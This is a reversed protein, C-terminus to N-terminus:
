RAAAVKERSIKSTVGSLKQSTPNLPSTYNNSHRCSGHGM